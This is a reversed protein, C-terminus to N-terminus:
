SQRLQLQCTGMPHLLGGWIGALLIEEEGEQTVEVAAAVQHPRDTTIIPLIRQIHHDTEQPHHDMEGAEVEEKLLTAVVKEVVVTVAEGIPTDEAM